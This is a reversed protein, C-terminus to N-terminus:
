NYHFSVFNFIKFKLKNWKRVSTEIRWLFRFIQALYMNNVDFQSLIEGANSHFLLIQILPSIKHCITSTKTLFSQLGLLIIHQGMTISHKYCYQVQLCVICAVMSYKRCYQVQLHVISEDMSYKCGCQVQFQVTSYKIGYQVQLCLTSVVMSYKVLM